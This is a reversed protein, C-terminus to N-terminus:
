EQQQQRQQEEEEDDMQMRVGAAPPGAAGAGVLVLRSTAEPDRTGHVQCICGDSYEGMVVMGALDMGQNECIATCGRAGGPIKPEGIFQTKCGAPLLVALAAGVILSSKTRIKM